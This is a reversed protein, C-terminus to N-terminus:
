LGSEMTCWSFTGSGSDRRLIWLSLAKVLCGMARDIADYIDGPQCNVPLYALGLEEDV